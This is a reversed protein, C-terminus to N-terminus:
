NAESQIIAQACTNASRVAGELTAPFGTDTYDGALWLNAIPTANSPRLGDVGVGCHFTARSEKVVLVDEPDPLEPWLQQLENLIKESLESNKFHLHEGSASIVVALLGQQGAFARDFVWEGYGGLMGTMANPLAM